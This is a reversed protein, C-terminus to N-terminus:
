DHNGNSGIVALAQGVPDAYDDPDPRPPVKRVDPSELGRHGACFPNTCVRTYEHM